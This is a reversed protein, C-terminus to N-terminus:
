QKKNINLVGNYALSVRKTDKRCRVFHMLMSNFIVLSGTISPHSFIESSYANHNDIMELSQGALLGTMPNIFTLFGEEAYPYYVASLFSTTHSHPMTIIDDNGFNGWAQILKINYKKNYIEYYYENMKQEVINNIDKFIPNSIIDYIDKRENIQNKNKIYNVIELNNVNKLDYASIGTAFIPKINVTM